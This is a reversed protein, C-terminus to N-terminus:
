YATGLRRNVYEFATNLESETMQQPYFQMVISTETTGGKISDIAEALYRTLTGDLPIVAEASRGEGIM